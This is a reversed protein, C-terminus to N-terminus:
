TFICMAYYLKNEKCYLPLIASKPTKFYESVLIIDLVINFCINKIQFMCIKPVLFDFSGTNIKHPPLAGLLNHTNKNLALRNKRIM